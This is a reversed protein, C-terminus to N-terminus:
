FPAHVRETSTSTTTNATTAGSGNPNTEIRVSENGYIEMTEIVTGNENVRQVIVTPTEEPQGDGPQDPPEVPIEGALFREITETEEFEEVDSTQADVFAVYAIGSNGEPVIRVQWYERDDIV